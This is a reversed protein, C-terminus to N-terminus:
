EPPAEDVISSWMKNSSPPKGRSGRPGQATSRPLLLSSVSSPADDNYVDFLTSPVRLQPSSCPKMGNAEGSGGPEACMAEADCISRIRTSLTLLADLCVSGRRISGTMISSANMSSAHETVVDKVAVGM